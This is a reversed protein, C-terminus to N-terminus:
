KSPPWGTPGGGGSNVAQLMMDVIRSIEYLNITTSRKIYNKSTYIANTPWPYDHALTATKSVIDSGAGAAPPTSSVFATGLLSVVGTIDVFSPGPLQGLPPWGSLLARFKSMYPTQIPSKSKKKGATKKAKKKKAM